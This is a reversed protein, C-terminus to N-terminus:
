KRNQWTQKEEKFSTSLKCQTQTRDTVRIREATRIPRTGSRRYVSCISGWGGSSRVYEASTVTRSAIEQMMANVRVAANGSGNARRLIM